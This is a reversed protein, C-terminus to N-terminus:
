KTEVEVDSSDPEDKKPAKVVKAQVTGHIKASEAELNERDPHEFLPM